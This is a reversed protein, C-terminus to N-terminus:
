VLVILETKKLRLWKDDGPQFYKITAVINDLLIEYDKTGIDCSQLKQLGEEIKLELIPAMKSIILLKRREENM